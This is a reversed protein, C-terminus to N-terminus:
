PPPLFACEVRLFFLPYSRLLQSLNSFGHFCLPKSQVPRHGTVQRCLTRLVSMIHNALLSPYFLPLIEDFVFFISILSISLPILMHVAIVDLVAGLFPHPLYWPAYLFWPFFRSISFFRSSFSINTGRQPLLPLPSSTPFPCFRPVGLLRQTPPTPPLSKSAVRHFFFPV